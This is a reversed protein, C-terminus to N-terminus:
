WPKSLASFGCSKSEDEYDLRRITLGVEVEFWINLRWSSGGFFFISKLSLHQEFDIAAGDYFPGSKIPIKAIHVEFGM